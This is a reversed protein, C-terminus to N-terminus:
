CLIRLLCSIVCRKNEKEAIFTGCLKDACAASTMEFCYKRVLQAIAL